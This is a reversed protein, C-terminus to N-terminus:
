PSRPSRPWRWPSPAPSTPPRCSSTRRLGAVGGRSGPDGRQRACPPLALLRVRRPAGDVRRPHLRRDWGVPRDPRLDLVRVGHAVARAPRAESPSRSWPLSSPTRPSALSAEAIKAYVGHYPMTNMDVLIQHNAYAEAQPGTLLQQGAYQDLYKGRLPNALNASGKPSFFIDQQALQNHVSSSTFSYGWMLLAGAVLLVAVVILGGASVLVDFVKRRM